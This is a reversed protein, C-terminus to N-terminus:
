NDGSEGDSKDSKYYPDYLVKVVELFAKPVDFTATLDPHKLNLRVTGHMDFEAVGEVIQNGSKGKVAVMFPNEKDLPPGVFKSNKKCCEEDCFQRMEGSNSFGTVYVKKDDDLYIGCTYCSEVSGSDSESM